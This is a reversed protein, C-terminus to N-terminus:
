AIHRESAYTPWEERRAQAAMIGALTFLLGNVFQYNMVVASANVLYVGLIVPWLKRFGSDLFRPPGQSGTKAPRALRFLCLILWGYLALALLGRGVALELFTNHFVYYEPHFDSIRRAVETQVNADTGWGLLPKEMFMQWGAQYIESRFDVPSQDQLRQSFEQSNFRQVTFVVLAAVGLLCFAVAARRVRRDRGFLVVAVISLLASLWV